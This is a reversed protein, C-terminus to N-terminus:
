VIGLNKNITEQKMKKLYRRSKEGVYVDWVSGFDILWCKDGILPYLEHIMVCTAVSASFAFVTPKYNKKNCYDLIKQKVKETASFCQKYPIEIFDNYQLFKNIPRLKSNGIFVVNMKNLQNIVPYLDGFKNARSFIKCDYWKIKSNNEKLFTYMNKNNVETFLANFRTAYMYKGPNLIVNTLRKKLEPLGLQHGSSNTRNAGLISLFEGDGIRSFSFFKGANLKNLYKDLGDYIITDEPLKRIKDFEKNM